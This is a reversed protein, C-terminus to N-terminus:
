LMVPMALNFDPLLVRFIVDDAEDSLLSQLKEVLSNWLADLPQKNSDTALNDFRLVHLLEKKMLKNSLSSHFTDGMPKSNDFKYVLPHGRGM